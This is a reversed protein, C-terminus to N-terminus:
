VVSVERLIFCGESYCLVPMFGISGALSVGEYLIDDLASSLRSDSGYDELSIVEFPRIGWRMFVRGALARCRCLRYISCEEGLPILVYDRDSVVSDVSLVYGESLASILGSSVEGSCDGEVVSFPVIYRGGYEAKMFSDLM